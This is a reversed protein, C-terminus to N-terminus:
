LDDSKLQFSTSEANKDPSFSAALHQQSVTQSPKIDLRLTPNETPLNNKDLIGLVRDM